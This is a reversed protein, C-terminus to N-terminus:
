AKTEFYLHYHKSCNPNFSAKCHPCGNHSDLYQHITLETKCVGCFVAMKDFDNTSWVEASHGADEEHCQHCPYYQNCCKFKIAIVDNSSHYHTCRTENDIIKGNIKIEM